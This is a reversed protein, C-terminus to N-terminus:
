LALCKVQCHRRISAEHEEFTRSFYTIDDDGSLFYLYDGEAPQAVAKLTTLSPVAIPGPPLGAYRRTNYPSDYNTDRPNGEKDAIYQYTPDSGLMMGMSHRLLFVQAIQAEDGGVAEKEIISAMTIAEFLNFGQLEFQTVLGNEEIVEYFYDFIYNLIDKVSAGAGFSYTEAYIYGELDAAAPKDAMLPKDYNASFAEDIEEQSYGASLFVKKNAAITSGPLFTISFTDVSGKVLHDIIEPTSESKSLRYMGAQLKNQVGSLRAHWQFVLSNRILGEQHLQEAIVQPTSGSEITVAIKNLSQDDVPQLQSGYWLWLGGVVLGIVVLTTILLTTLLKKRSKRSSKPLLPSNTLPQPQTSPAPNPQPKLQPELRPTPLSDSPIQSISPPAPPLPTTPRLPRSPPVKRGFNDM